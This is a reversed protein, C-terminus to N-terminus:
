YKDIYWKDRNHTTNGVGGQYKAGRPHLSSTDLSYVLMHLFSNAIVGLLYGRSPDLGICLKSWPANTTRGYSGRDSM